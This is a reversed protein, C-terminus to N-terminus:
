QVWQTHPEGGALICIFEKKFVNYEGRFLRDHVFDLFVTVTLTLVEDSGKM